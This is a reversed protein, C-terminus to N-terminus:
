SPMSCAVSGSISQSPPMAGSAMSTTLTSARPAPTGRGSSGNGISGAASAPGPSHSGLMLSSSGRRIQAMCFTASANGRRVSYMM